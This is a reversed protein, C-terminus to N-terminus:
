IKEEKEKDSLYESLQYLDYYFNKERITGKVKKFEDMAYIYHRPEYYKRGETNYMHKMLEEFSPINVCVEEEKVETTVKVVQLEDPDYNNIPTDYSANYWSTSHQRVFEAHEPNEVLWVLNNSWDVLEYAVSGCFDSGENSTVKVKLLAKKIKHRLGYQITKTKM